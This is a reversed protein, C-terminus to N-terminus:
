VETSNFQPHAKSQYILIVGNDHCLKELRSMQATVHDWKWLLDRADKLKMGDKWLGLDQLVSQCGKLGIERMPVRNKGGDSLNM